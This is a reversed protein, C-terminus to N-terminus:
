SVQLLTDFLRQSMQIVQAAAQYAQQFRILNAAEEDLNVGVASERSAQAQDRVVLMAEKGLEALQARSGAGTVLDRYAASFTQGAILPARGLEIMRLINENSGLGDTNAEIYYTDGSKPVNNFQVRIGQYDIDAGATYLRTAVVTNTATDRITYVSNSTFDVRFPAAPFTAPVSQPKADARLTADVTGSGTVFIALDDAAPGDILVGTNLAM